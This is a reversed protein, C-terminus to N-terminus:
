KTGGVYLTTYEVVRREHHPAEPLPACQSLSPQQSLVGVDGSASTGLNNHIIPEDFWLEQDFQKHASAVWKCYRDQLGRDTQALLARTYAAGPVLAQKTRDAEFNPGLFLFARVRRWARDPVALTQEKALTSFLYFAM